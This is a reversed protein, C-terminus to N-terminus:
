AQRLIKLVRFTMVFAMVATAGAFLLVQYGPTWNMFTLLGGIALAVVGSLSTLLNNASLVRARHDEEAQDQLFASLPVIFFGSAFGIFALSLKWTLTTPELLGVGALGLAMGFVGIPVIDLRIHKKSLVSVILSGIILGVFIYALLWTAASSPGEYGLDAFYKRGFRIVALGMFNAVFWYFAICLATLRLLRDHFLHQLHVFHRGWVSKTFKMKPHSPTTEIWRSVVLPVVCAVGIAIVPILAANWSNRPDSVNSEKFGVLLSDFWQGGLFMGGIIGIMTLMQMLGNAMGLRATGVLEKLIGMKAPSFVTSQVALLFYGFIAGLVIGSAVSGAILIFIALQGILCYFIVIKKSFRDSLFGAVPALLIFPIPIMAGLITDIQKGIASAGAVEIALGVLVFKVFNDNFANQTQVFLVAALSIWNRRSVTEDTPQSSQSAPDSM